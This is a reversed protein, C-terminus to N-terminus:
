SQKKKRMYYLKARRVKGKKLVNIKEITPSDLSFIREIAIKGTSVKRVTFTGSAGEGRKSIVVGEFPVAHVRSDQPDRTFVKVIDGVEFAFSNM